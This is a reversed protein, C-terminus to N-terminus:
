AHAADDSNEPTARDSFLDHIRQLPEFVATIVGSAYRRQLIAVDRASTGFSFQLIEFRFEGLHREGAMDADTM